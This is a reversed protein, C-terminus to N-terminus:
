YAGWMNNNNNLLSDWSSYDQSPGSFNFQNSYDTPAMMDNFSTGGTGGGGFWDTNGNGWSSIQNDWNSMSPDISNNFGQYDGPTWSSSGGFWNKVANAGQGLLSGIGGQGGNQGFMGRNAGFGNMLDQLMKRKEVINAQNGSLLTDAGYARSATDGQIGSLSALAQQQPFYYKAANDQGVKMLDALRNGSGLEGKAAATRNVANMGADQMSQYLPSTNMGGPNSMLLSLQDRYKQQDASPNLILSKADGYAQNTQDINKNAQWASIFPNAAGAIDGVGNFLQSWDFGENAMNGGLNNTSSGSTSGYTAVPNGNTSNGFLNNTAAGTLFNGGANLLKEWGGTAGTSNIGQGVASNLGGTIGGKLLGQGVNGGNMLSSLGGKAAGTIANNVIPSTGSPMFDKVFQGGNQGLWGGAYGSAAGKAGGKVVDGFNGEGTSNFGAAAGSLGGGLAGAQAGTMGAAFGAGGALAGIVYPSYDIWNTDNVGIYNSPSQILGISPDWQLQSLDRSGGEVGFDLLARSGGQGQKVTFKALPNGETFQDSIGIRKAVQPGYGMQGKLFTAPDSLIGKQAGPNLMAFKEATFGNKEGGTYNVLDALTMPGTPIAGDFRQIFDQPMAVEPKLTYLGKTANPGDANPDFTYNALYEDSLRSPLGEGSDSGYGTTTLPLWKRSNLPM